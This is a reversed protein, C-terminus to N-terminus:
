LSLMGVLTEHATYTPHYPIKVRPLLDHTRSTSASCINKIQGSGNTGTTPVPVLLGLRKDGTTPVPVLLGSWKDRIQLGPELVLVFPTESGLYFLTEICHTIVHKFLWDSLCVSLGECFDHIYCSSHKKKKACIVFVSVLICARVSM